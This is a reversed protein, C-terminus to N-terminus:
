RSAIKGIPYPQCAGDGTMAVNAKDLWAQELLV